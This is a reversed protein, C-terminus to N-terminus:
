NNQGKVESLCIIVVVKHNGNRREKHTLKKAIGKKKFGCTVDLTYFIFHKNNYTILM